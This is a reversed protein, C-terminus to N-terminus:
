RQTAGLALRLAFSFRSEGSDVVFKPRITAPKRPEMTEEIQGTRGTKATGAGRLGLVHTDFVDKDRLLRVAAAAPSTKCRSHPRQCADDPHPDGSELLM